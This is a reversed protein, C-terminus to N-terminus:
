YGPFCNKSWKTNFCYRLPSFAASYPRSVAKCTFEEPSLSSSSEVWNADLSYSLKLAKLSWCVCVYVCMKCINMYVYEYVCVYVCVCKVYMLPSKNVGVLWGAQLLREDFLEADQDIESRVEKLPQYM